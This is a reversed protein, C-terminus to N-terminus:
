RQLWICIGLFFIVVGGDRGIDKALQYWAGIGKPSGIGKMTLRGGEVLLEGMVFLIFPNQFTAPAPPKAGFSAISTRVSWVTYLGILISFLAHIIKWRAAQKKQEETEPPKGLFMSTVFSPIGTAKSIDDPSFSPMEPANPDSPDGGGGGMISQLMKIMPDEEQQSENQPQSQARLM